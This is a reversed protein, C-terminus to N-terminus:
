IRANQEDILRYELCNRDCYRSLEDYFTGSPEVPVYVILQKLEPRLLESALQHCEILYSAIHQCVDLAEPKEFPRSNKKVIHIEM